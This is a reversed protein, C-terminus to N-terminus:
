ENGEVEVPYVLFTIKQKEALKKIESFIGINSMDLLDM